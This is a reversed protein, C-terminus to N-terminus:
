VVVDHQVKTRWSGAKRGALTWYIAGACAGSLTFMAAEVFATQDPGGITRPSFEIYVGVSLLASPIAYVFFARWRFVEAVVLILLMPVASLVVALLVVFIGVIPAGIFIAPSVGALTWYGPAGPLLSAVGFLVAFTAFFGLVSAIYAGLIVFMRNVYQM